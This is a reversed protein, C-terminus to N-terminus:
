EAKPKPGRKRKWGLEEAKEVTAKLDNIEIERGNPKVWRSM